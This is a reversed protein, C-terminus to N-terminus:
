RCLDSSSSIRHTNQGLIYHVLRSLLLKKHTQQLRGAQDQLLTKLMDVTQTYRM